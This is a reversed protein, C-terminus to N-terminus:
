QKMKKCPQIIISGNINASVKPIVLESGTVSGKRIMASRANIAKAYM